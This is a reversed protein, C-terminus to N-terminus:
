VEHRYPSHHQSGHQYIVVAEAIVEQIPKWRVVQAAKGVVAKDASAMTMAQLDIRSTFKDSRNAIWDNKHLTIPNTKLRSHQSDSILHKAVGL